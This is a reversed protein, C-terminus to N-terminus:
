VPSFHGHLALPLPYDLWARALPGDSVRRADQRPTPLRGEIRAECRLRDARVGRWGLLMPDTELARAFDASWDGGGAVALLPYLPALGALGAARLFCRRTWPTGTM